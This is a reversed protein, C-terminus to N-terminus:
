EENEHEELESEFDAVSCRYAIPDLEKLIEAADFELYSIKFTGYIDNIMEDHLEEIEQDTYIM